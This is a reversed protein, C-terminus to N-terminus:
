CCYGLFHCQMGYIVGNEYQNQYNREPYTKIVGKVSFPLVARALVQHAPTAHGENGDRDRHDHGVHGGDKNQPVGRLHEFMAGLVTQHNEATDHGDQRRGIQEDRHQVSKFQDAGKLYAYVFCLFHFRSIHDSTKFIFHHSRNIVHMMTMISFVMVTQKDFKIILLCLCPLLLLVVHSLQFYIM